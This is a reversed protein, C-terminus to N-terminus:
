VKGIERAIDKMQNMPIGYPYGDDGLMSLVGRKQERLVERCEAEPLQQKFRRMKRFM